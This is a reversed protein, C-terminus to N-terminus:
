ILTAPVRTEIKLARRDLGGFHDGCDGFFTDVWFVYFFM